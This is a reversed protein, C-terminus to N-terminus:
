GASARPAVCKNKGYVAASGFLFKRSGELRNHFGGILNASMFTQTLEAPYKYTARWFSYDSPDSLNKSLWEIAVPTDNNSYQRKWEDFPFSKPAGLAECPHTAKPAAPMDDDEDDKEEKKPKPAAKPAPAAAEKKPAKEKAPAKPPDVPADLVAHPAGVTKTFVEQNAVTRYHRFVNPYSSVFSKDLM